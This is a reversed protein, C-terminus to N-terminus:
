TNGLVLRKAPFWINFRSGKGVTSIIELRAEHRNLVHKVIALGLGTGGTERSRSNDIRYFRETLRPIHESEIGIGSDQVFFLGRDNYKEWSIKIEGGDPTYRIANSILNGFASRLEEESGLLQDQSAITLKIQHRGASLSEADQLLDQALRVVNVTKDAVINQQNELRSLILLDEILRQMRTTQETMLVLARKNFGANVNDDASLTELFGGIVTLPTRLEHSVNAIFDRRMTEIKEFRTIDRSILLKQNYGYPVLQLSIIQGYLRTQKIVLPKSYQRAALYEVFPIQRVLYTIQQGIDLGLSIGLHQEAVPNCWEIRDSKDLIVIGDPMASTVSQMRELALSLIEQSQSHQRVYRALHAFVEDWAGSGAPISKSSHDSLQLWRELLVLHRIHHFAIWLMAVSFFILAKVAGFIMWLLAAIFVLFLINSSRRWIDSM